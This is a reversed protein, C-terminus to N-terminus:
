KLFDAFKEPYANKFEIKATTSLKNFDDKTIDGKPVGGGTSGNAKKQGSLPMEFDEPSEAKIEAIRAKLADVGKEKLDEQTFSLAARIGAASYKSKPKAEGIASDIIFDYKEKQEREIEANKENIVKEYAAKVDEVKEMGAMEALKTDLGKKENELTSIQNKLGDVETKHAEEDAGSMELIKDIVEKSLDMGDFDKRKM